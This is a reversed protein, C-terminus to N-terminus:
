LFVEPENMVDSYRFIPGSECVYWQGINCHGCVGIGCEMRRELSLYINEPSFGHKILEQVSFKMMIPPGIVFASGNKYREVGPILTTVVGVNGKWSPDGNDVTIRFDLEKKWAEIENKYVIDKPSRAGYLVTLDGLNGESEMDEILAKIPPIGIGGAIAVIHDAGKWPWANGYPGRLGIASDRHDMIYKTVSGVAKISFTLPNGFGSAVSIPSEGVGDVSLMYFQGAHSMTRKSFVITYTDDTEMRFRIPKMKEPLYENKITIM